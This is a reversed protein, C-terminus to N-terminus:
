YSLSELNVPRANWGQQCSYGPYQWSFAVADRAGLGIFRSGGDAHAYHILLSNGSEYVSSCITSNISPSPTYHWTETATMRSPNISYRRPASYSRDIGPAICCQNYSIEGNDFLMLENSATISVAHEGIPPLSGSSLTLAYKRLSAFDQYWGKNTDGLIWKVKKDTYGIGIVFNERSSVVLTDYKRWYTAANNHFWDVGDRIWASDVTAADDASMAERIIASLDFTTLVNGSRDIEIITSEIHSSTNAELLLGNKGPDFNHHFDTVGVGSLDVVHSSGGGLNMKRVSSGWAYYLASGWLYANQPAGADFVWRVNGDIDIITPATGDWGNKVLLYSYALAVGSRRAVINSRHAATYNGDYGSTSITASLPVSAKGRKVVIRVQNSHDPYLGFIPLTIRNAGADVAGISALYTASYTASIARATAGAKPVVTFQVSSSQAAGISRFLM